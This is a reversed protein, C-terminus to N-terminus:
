ISHNPRANLEIESFNKTLFASAAKRVNKEFDDYYNPKKSKRIRPSKKLKEEVKQIKENLYEKSSGKSSKAKKLYFIANKYDHEKEYVEAFKLYTIMSSYSAFLNLTSSDVENVSNEFYSLAQKRFYAGKSEYAFAVAMKDIPNESKEYLIIIIDFLVYRAKYTITYAENALGIARLNKPYKKDTTNLVQRVIDAEHRSFRQLDYRGNQDVVSKSTDQNYVDPYYIVPKQESNKPEKSSFFLDSFFGM